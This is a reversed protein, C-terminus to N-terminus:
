WSDARRAGPSRKWVFTGESYQVGQDVEPGFEDREFGMRKWFPLSPPQVGRAIIVTPRYLEKVREILSRAYGRRRYYPRTELRNLVHWSPQREHPQHQLYALLMGGREVVLFTGDSEAIDFLLWDGEGAQMKEEWEELTLARVIPVLAKTM